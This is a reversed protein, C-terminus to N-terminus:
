RRSPRKATAKAKGGEVQLAGREKNRIEMGPGRRSGEGGWRSRVHWKLWRKHEYFLSYLHTVIQQTKNASKINIVMKVIKNHLM